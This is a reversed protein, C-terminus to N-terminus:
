EMCSLNIGAIHLRPRPIIVNDVNFIINEICSSGNKRINDCKITEDADKTHISERLNELKKLRSACQYKSSLCKARQWSETKFHNSVETSAYKTYHKFVKYTMLHEDVLMGVSMQEEYLNEFNCKVALKVLM